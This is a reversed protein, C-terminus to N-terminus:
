DGQRSALGSYFINLDIENVKGDLNLDAAAKQSCSKTGFCSLFINYDSLDLVNDQNLDGTVLEVPGANNAGSGITKLGLDKILSNDTHVKLQYTGTPVNISSSFTGSGANYNFTASISQTKQGQADYLDLTGAKAVPNPNPNDGAATGTGIGPLDITLSLTNGSGGGPINTPTLTATAGGPPNTPTATPTSTATGGGSPPPTSNNDDTSNDTTASGGPNVKAFDTIWVYGAQVQSKARAVGMATFDGRINQEHGPSAIWADMMQQTTATRGANEGMAGVIEIGCNPIRVDMNEGKSNVHASYGHVAEDEALNAAVVNLKQSVALPPLGKSARYQNHLDVMKKEETDLGPHDAPCDGAAAPVINTADTSPTLTAAEGLEAQEVAVKKEYQMNLQSFTFPVALVITVILLGVFIRRRSSFYTELKETM